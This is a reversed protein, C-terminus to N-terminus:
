LYRYGDTLGKWFFYSVVLFILGALLFATNAVIQVGGLNKVGIGVFAWIFVLPYILDQQVKAFGLSLLTAVILMVITWIIESIGFNWWNYYKLTFSINTITAVSIWGLYMSVPLLDFFSPNTNKVVSYFRVLSILLLIMVVVSIIFFEYHWSFLWLINWLCSFVFSWLGKKYMPLTRRSPPIIRLIWIALLLYILGWILFVYSAPTFLVNVKGAIEGTSQGNLPITNALINVAVMILYVLSYIIFPWM